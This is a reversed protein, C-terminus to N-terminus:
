ISNNVIFLKFVVVFFENYRRVDKSKFRVKQNHNSSLTGHLLSYKEYSTKINSASQLELQEHSEDM